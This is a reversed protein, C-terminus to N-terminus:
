DNLSFSRRKRPPPVASVPATMMPRLRASSIALGTLRTSIPEKVIRMSLVTLPGALLILPILQFLTTRQYHTTWRALDQSVTSLVHRHGSRGRRPAKTIPMECHRLLIMRSSTFRLSNKLLASTLIRQGSPRIKWALSKCSRQFSGPIMSHSRLSCLLTLTSWWGSHLYAGTSPKHTRRWANTTPCPFRRM